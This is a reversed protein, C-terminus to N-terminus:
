RRAVRRGHRNGGDGSPTAGGEPAERSLEGELLIARRMPELAAEVARDTVEAWDWQGAISMAPVVALPVGAYGLRLEVPGAGPPVSITGPADLWVPVSAVSREAWVPELFEQFRAPSPLAETIGQLYSLRLLRHALRHWRPRLRARELNELATSGSRLMADAADPRRYLLMARRPVGPGPGAEGGIPLQGRMQPHKLGLLVDDRAEQHAHRLATAFSTDLYHSGRARPHYSFTVGGGLLRIGLEWDQRRGKFTEDYGGCGLLVERPLSCNGDSFDIYTWQHVREAKRRFHDEWWARVTYAWLSPEDIVPPYYGLAVHEDRRRHADGHAALFDREPVIDDDLFVVIPNAAERTGRNRTAALGKNDQELLKVRYPLELSRVMESSGDTSGDLVVVTEFSDSPYSQATLSELVTRLRDRRNRSAILVSLPAPEAGIVVRPPGPAREETAPRPRLELAPIDRRSRSSRWLKWPGRPIGAAEALILELPLAREEGRRLRGLDSRLHRPWWRWLRLVGPERHTLLCRTTYAFEGVTYNHLTRRLVPLDRRHRHWVIRAPDFVIRYGAEAIRYFAYKEEGNRAPTGPGLDEAFLGVEDFVRRRFLSNAGAGATAAIDIPSRSAGDFLRREGHRQFGGHGEFLFQARTELEVPGAYGTLAMVLPDDFPDALGDLWHPDVVCDDDTFAVVDCCAEVVGRNRARALGLTEEVVYSVPYAACVERTARDGSSNDVVVVEDPQTCLAALSDLCRRLDAPREQTCIIVSVSPGGRRREDTSGCAARTFATRVRQRWLPEALHDAIAKRQSAVTLTPGPSLMLQGVFAGRSIVVLLVGQYRDEVRVERLGEDLNARVVKVSAV